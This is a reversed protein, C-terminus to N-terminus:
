LKEGRVVTQEYHNKLLARQVAESRGVGSLDKLLKEMKEKSLAQKWTEFEEEFAKEVEAQRAALKQKSIELQKNFFQSREESFYGQGRRLNWFLANLPGKKFEKGNEVDFALDRVSEKVLEQSIPTSAVLQQIQALQSNTLKLIEVDMQFGTDNLFNDVDTETTTTKNNFNSSSSSPLKTRPETELQSEVKDGSQGRDTRVKDRTENHLLDQFVSKPLSYVTWGGRGNKFKERVLFGSKELRQITKKVSSTTSVSSQSLHEITLPASLRDQNKVCSEYILILLKKQLGVLQFINCKTELKDETQRWKTEPLTRPKSEVKDRTENFVSSKDKTKTKLKDRTKDETQRQKTKLKDASQGRNTELKKPTPSESKKSLGGWMASSPEDDAEFFQDLDEDSIKNKRSM